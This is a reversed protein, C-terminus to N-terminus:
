GYARDGARVCRQLVCRSGSRDWLWRLIKLADEVRVGAVSGLGHGVGHVCQIRQVPTEATIPASDCLNAVDERADRPMTAVFAEVVGHYCGTDFIATEKPDRTRTTTM